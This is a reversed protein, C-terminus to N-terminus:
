LDLIEGILADAGVGDGGLNVQDFYQYWGLKATGDIVKKATEKDKAKWIAVYRYNCRPVTSGENLCGIDLELGEGELTALFDNVKGMFEGRDSPPLSLWSEKANWLEVLIYM